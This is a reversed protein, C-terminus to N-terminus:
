YALTCCLEVMAIDPAVLTCHITANWIMLNARMPIKLPTRPSTKERIQQLGDRDIPSFAWTPAVKM